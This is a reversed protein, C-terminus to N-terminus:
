YFSGSEVFKEALLYAEQVVHDPYGKLELLRIANRSKTPGDQIRYDFFHRGDEIQESFHHMVFENALLKHLEVDHTTVLSINNRSLQKLVSTAAAIRELSNTGRFIEDILFIYSNKQAGLKMFELVAEIEKFYYSKNDNIDDTRKISSRVASRPIDAESALCIAITQGLIINLGITKMFTTKGAMNSGTILVSRDSIKISNSVPNTLLPHYINEVAILNRSNLQPYCYHRLNEVYSSVSIAADLSAVLEYVRRTKAQTNSISNISRVFAVLNFLCFYNLYSVVVRSLENLRSEDITLWGIKRNLANSFDRLERLEELQSIEVDEIKSLSVGIDLMVSLNSIDSFYSAVRRGYLHNIILNIVFLGVTPFVFVANSVILVSSLLTLFSSVYILVFARPRVPGEQFILSPIFHAGSHRLRRLQLLIRERLDSRQSFHKYQSFRNALITDDAYEHLLHYLYQSGIHSVNRDIQCFFSDMNLDNWTNDDVFQETGSDSRLRHYISIHEFNRERQVEHGWNSRLSELACRKNFVFAPLKRIFNESVTYISMVFNELASKISVGFVRVRLLCVM